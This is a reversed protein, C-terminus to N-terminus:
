HTADVQIRYTARVTLINSKYPALCVVSDSMFAIVEIMDYDTENSSWYFTEVFPMGGNDTLLKNYVMVSASDFNHTGGSIADWM